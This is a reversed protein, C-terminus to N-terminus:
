KTTRTTFKHLPVDRPEVGHKKLFDLLDQVNISGSNSGLLRTGKNPGGTETAYIFFKDTEKARPM